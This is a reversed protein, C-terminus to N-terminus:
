KGGLFHSASYMGRYRFKVPHAVGDQMLTAPYKTGGSWPLDSGLTDLYAPDIRVDLVRLEHLGPDESLGDVTTSLFSSAAIMVMRRPGLLVAFVIFSILLPLAVLLWGKGISRKGRRM